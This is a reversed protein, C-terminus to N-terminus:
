RDQPATALHHGRGARTRALRTRPKPREARWLRPRVTWRRGDHLVVAFWGLRGISDRFLFRAQARRVSALCEYATRYKTESIIQLFLRYQHSVCMVGHEVREEARRISIVIKQVSLCGLRPQCRALDATVRTSSRAPKSSRSALSDIQRQHMGRVPFPRGPGPGPPAWKATKKRAAEKKTQKHEM